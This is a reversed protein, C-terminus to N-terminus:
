HTPVAPESERTTASVVIPAPRVTTGSPVDRSVVCNACVTVADGIQVPGSVVAGTLIRADAGIKPMGTKGPAGGLTVNQYIWARPGLVVGPGIVISQPHPLILGGYLRAAPSLTSGYWHRVFWNIFGAAVRGVFGLYGRACHALRYLATARFGPSTAAIRLWGRCKAFRTQPRIEVPFHALVDAMASSWFSVPSRDDPEQWDANRLDGSAPGDTTM